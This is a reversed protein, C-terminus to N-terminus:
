LSYRGIIERIDEEELSAELDNRKGKIVNIVEQNWFLQKLNEPIEKNPLKM